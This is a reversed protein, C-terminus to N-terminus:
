LKGSYLMLLLCLMQIPWECISSGVEKSHGEKKQKASSESGLDVCVHNVKKAQHEATKHLLIADGAKIVQFNTAYKMTIVIDNNDNDTKVSPKKLRYEITTLEMNAEERTEKKEILWFLSVCEESYGMPNLFARFGPSTCRCEIASQPCKKSDITEITFSMTIPAMKCEGIAYQQEAFVKREPAIVMYANIPEFDRAMAQVIDAIHGRYALTDLEPMTMYHPDAHKTHKRIEIKAVEKFEATFVDVDLEINTRDDDEVVWNSSVKQLKVCGDAGIASIAWQDLKTKAKNNMVHTGVHFGKNHMTLKGVNAANGVADYLIVNQVPEKDDKDTNKKSVNVSSVPVDVGMAVCVSATFREVVDEITPVPVDKDKPKRALVATVIATHLEGALAMRPGQPLQAMLSRSRKLFCDAKLVDAKKDKKGFQAIEAKQIFRAFGDQVLANNAAHAYVVANIFHSPMEDVGFEKRLDTLWKFFHGSVIRDSPIWNAMKALDRVFVGTPLGGWYRVYEVLDPVDAM